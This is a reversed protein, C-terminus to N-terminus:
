KIKERLAVTMAQMSDRLADLDERLADGLSGIQMRSFELLQTLTAHFDARQEKEMVAHEARQEKEAKLHSDILERIQKDKAPLHVLLLWCLVAGLLGAGIWGAGGSIPDIDALLPLWDM